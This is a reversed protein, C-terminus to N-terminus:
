IEKDLLKSAWLSFEDKVEKETIPREKEGTAIDISKHLIIEAAASILSKNKAVYEKVRVAKRGSNEISDTLLDLAEGHLGIEDFAKELIAKKQKKTKAIFFFSVIATIGTVAYSVMEPHAILYEMLTNM